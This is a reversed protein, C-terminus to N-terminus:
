VFRRLASKLTGTSRVSMPPPTSSPSSSTQVPDNHDMSREDDGLIREVLKAKERGGSDLRLAECAAQLEERRLVELVRRFGLSRKRVIADIHSDTSRRDDVDLEFRTTLEALRDRSLQQLITRRDRPSLRAEPM